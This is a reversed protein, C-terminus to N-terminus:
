ARYAGTQRAWLAYNFTEASRTSNDVYQHFGDLSKDGDTAMFSAFLECALKMGRKDLRKGNDNCYSALLTEFQAEFGARDEKLAASLDSHMAKDWSSANMGLLTQRVDEREEPTFSLDAPTQPTVANIIEKDSDPTSILTQKDHEQGWRAMEFQQNDMAARHRRVYWAAQQTDYGKEANYQETRQLDGIVEKTKGRQAVVRAELEEIPLNQLDDCELEIERGIITHIDASGDVEKVGWGSKSNVDITMFCHNNNAQLTYAVPKGNEDKIVEAVVMAHYGTTTNTASNGTPLSLADGVGIEGSAIRQNLTKPGSFSTQTELGVKARANTVSDTRFYERASASNGRVGKKERYIAQFINVDGDYGMKGCIQAGVSTATIACCHLTSSPSVMRKGDYMCKSALVTTRGIACDNVQQQRREKEEASIGRQNIYSAYGDWVLNNDKVDLATAGDMALNYVKLTENRVTYEYEQQRLATYSNLLYEKYADDSEFNKRTKVPVDQELKWLRYDRMDQTMNPTIHPASSLTRHKQPARAMDKDTGKPVAEM